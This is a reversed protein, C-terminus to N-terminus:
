VRDHDHRGSEYLHANFEAEQDEADRQRDRAEMEAITLERKPKRVKRPKVEIWGSEDDEAAVPAPAPAQAEVYQEEDEEEEDRSLRRVRYFSQFQRRESEEKQRRYEAVQKDTHEDAAWKTALQAFVSGTAAQTPKATSFSPFNTETVETKKRREEDEQQAKRAAERERWNPRQQNPRM